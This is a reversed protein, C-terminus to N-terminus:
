TEKNSRQETSTIERAVEIIKYIELRDQSQVDTTNEIGVGCEFGTDVEKVDDKFRKLSTIKGKFIEKSDRYIKVLANRIIKGETVYCGIILGLKPITFIQRVEAKGIIVEKEEPELLGLM